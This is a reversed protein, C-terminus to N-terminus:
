LKHAGTNERNTVCAKTLQQFHSTPDDGDWYLPLRIRLINKTPAVMALPIPSITIQV